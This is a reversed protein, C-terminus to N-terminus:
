YYVQVLTSVILIVVPVVFAPVFLVLLDQGVTLSNSTLLRISSFGVEPKLMFTKIVYLGPKLTTNSIFRVVDFIAAAMWLLAYLIISLTILKKNTYYFPNTINIARVVCLIVNVFTSTRISTGLLVYSVVTFYSAANPTGIMQCILAISQIVVAIGICIDVIANSFYLLSVVKTLTNRYFKVIIGNLALSLLCIVANFCVIGCSTSTKIGGANNESSRSSVTANIVDMTKISVPFTRRPSTVKGVASPTVTKPLSPTPTLPRPTQSFSFDLKTSYSIDPHWALFWSIILLIAQIMAQYMYTKSIHSVNMKVTKCFFIGIQQQILLYYRCFTSM